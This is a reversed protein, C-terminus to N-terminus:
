RETGGIGGKMGYRESGKERKRSKRKQRKDRGEGRKSQTGRSM